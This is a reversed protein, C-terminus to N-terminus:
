GLTNRQSLPGSNAQLAIASHALPLTPRCKMGGPYGHRLPHVSDTLLRSRVCRRFRLWQVLRRCAPSSAVEVVLVMVSVRIRRRAAQGPRTRARLLCIVLGNRQAILRIWIFSLCLGRGDGRAHRQVVVLGILV